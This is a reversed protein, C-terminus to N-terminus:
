IQHSLRLQGKIGEDGNTAALQNMIRKGVPNFDSAMFQDFDPTSPPLPTAPIIIGGTLATGNVPTPWHGTFGQFAPLGFLHLLQDTLVEETAQINQTIIVGPLSHQQLM